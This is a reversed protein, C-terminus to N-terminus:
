HTTLFFMAVFGLGFGGGSSRSCDARNISVAFLEVVSVLAKARAM